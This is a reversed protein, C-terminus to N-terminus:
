ENKLLRKIKKIRIRNFILNITKQNGIIFSKGPKKPTLLDSSKRGKIMIYDDMYEDIYYSVNDIIGKLEVM